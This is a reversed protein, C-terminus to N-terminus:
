SFSPASPKKPKPMSSFYPPSPKSSQKMRLSPATSSDFHPAVPTPAATPPRLMEVAGMAISAESSILARASGSIREPRLPEDSQMVSGPPPESTALM